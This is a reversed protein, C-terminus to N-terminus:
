CHEIAIWCLDIRVKVTSPHMKPWFKSISVETPPSMTGGFSFFFRYSAFGLAQVDTTWIQYHMSLRPQHTISRVLDHNVYLCVCVCMRVPLSLARLGFNSEPLFPGQFIPTM